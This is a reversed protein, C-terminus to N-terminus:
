SRVERGREFRILTHSLGLRVIATSPYPACSSVYIAGFRALHLRRETRPSPVGDILLTWPRPRSM